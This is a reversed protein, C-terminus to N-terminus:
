TRLPQVQVTVNGSLVVVVLVVACVATVAASLATMVRLSNSMHGRYGISRFAM